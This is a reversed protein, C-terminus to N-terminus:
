RAPMAVVPATPLYGDPRAPYEGVAAIVLKATDDGPVLRRNSGLHDGNDGVSVAAGNRLV